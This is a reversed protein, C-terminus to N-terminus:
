IWKVARLAESLRGEYVKLCSLPGSVLEQSRCDLFASIWHIEDLLRFFKGCVALRQLVAVEPKGGAWEAVASYAGM